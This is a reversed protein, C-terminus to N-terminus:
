RSRRSTRPTWRRDGASGHRARARRSREMASASCRSSASSWGRPTRASPPRARPRGRRRGQRHAAADRRRGVRPRRLAALPGRRRAGRARRREERARQAGHRLGVCPAAAPLERASPASRPAALADLPMCSRTATPWSSSRSGSAWSPGARELEALVEPLARVRFAKERYMDCYTCHNWSCGITAQVILADAESPPRYLKGEYRM